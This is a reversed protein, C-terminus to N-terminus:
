MAKLIEGPYSSSKEVLVEKKGVVRYYRTFYTPLGHCKLVNHEAKEMVQFHIHPASSAGSHGCLGLLDGRKVVQGKKVKITGKKFHALYSFFGEAHKIIVTNGGPYKRDFSGTVGIATHDDFRDVVEVVRGDAPALVKAGFSYYDERSAGKGKFLNGQDDVKLFDIAFYNSNRKSFIQRHHTFVDHGEMHLWRGKFPLSLYVAPKYQTVKVDWEFKKVAGKDTAAVALCKIKKVPLTADLENYPHSILAVDGPKFKNVATKMARKRFRTTLRAINDTNHSVLRRALLLNGQADLYRFLIVKISGAFDTRLVLDFNLLSINGCRELYIKEPITDTKAKAAKKKAPGVAKASKSTKGPRAVKGTKKESQRKKGTCSVLVLAVMVATFLLLEGIKKDM